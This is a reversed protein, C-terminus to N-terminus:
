RSILSKVFGSIITSMCISPNLLLFFYFFFISIKSSFLFFLHFWIFYIYMYIYFSYQFLYVNSFTYIYYIYIYIRKLWYICVLLLATVFGTEVKIRKSFRNQAFPPRNKKKLKNKISFHFLQFTSHKFIQFNFFPILSIRKKM